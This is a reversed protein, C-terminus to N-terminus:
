ENLNLHLFELRRVLLSLARLMGAEAVASVSILSSIEMASMVSSLVRVGSMLLSSFDKGALTRRSSAGLILSLLQIVSLPLIM